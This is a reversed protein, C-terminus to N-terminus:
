LVSELLIMYAQLLAWLFVPIMPYAMLWEIATPGDKTFSYYLTILMVHVSVM